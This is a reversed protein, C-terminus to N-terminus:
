CSTPPGSATLLDAVAAFDQRYAKMTHASPKRTAREILFDVFWAPTAPWVDDRSASSPLLARARDAVEANTQDSAIATACALLTVAFLHIIV